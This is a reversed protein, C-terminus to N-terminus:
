NKFRRLVGSNIKAARQRADPHRTKLHAASGQRTFAHFVAHGHVFLQVSKAWRFCAAGAAPRSLRWVDAEEFDVVAGLCQM